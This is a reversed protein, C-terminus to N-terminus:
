SLIDCRWLCEVLLDVMSSSIANTHQINLGLLTRGMKLLYPLSKGSLYSCGSISLIQLNLQVACALAGIGSDTIASKSVDVESLLSCNEAIAVLSEDTIHKCGDLNLVELTSGHMKAITSIVKDSLNVCGSLNVKSLGAECLEILPLLGKDTIRHLGYLDVNQLQPCMKGLMALSFDGFGPCNRISLSQLSACQKMLPFGLPLDKFGLCNALALAKLRASCNVLVGFFGSQTIRHCEELQLSELSPTVKAFSVLGNDSLLACKQLCFRKLNPCGNGMAELGIDTVGHCSIVTFSRLKQLGQASGMVWFGKETVYQLDCLALDTVAKGYHGIVALSVDSINLSQLKLKTLDNSASSLLRAIGQDSVLPCNKISVSRLSRCQTGIAQLSANGINLCSDINVSTLNPCNKAFALLANDSINPCHSLDLKELLCCGNAIEFLGEDGVSSVNWLSLNRLSPCSSAIAKLGLNTVGRTSNSRRIALKGLGGRHGTGIAIAALRVDTAKRGELCRSLYGDGEIEQDEGEVEVKNGVNGVKTNCVTPKKETEFSPATKTSCIEDRRISSLLILWRKSVCASISKEKGQPLRRLVEFLCEDPLVDISPSQKEVFIEDNFVFPATIRSRKRPAFFVDVHNSLSSFLRSEKLNPYISGGPLLNADGAYDFLKSM